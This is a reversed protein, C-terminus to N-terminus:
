TITVTITQSCTDTFSLVIECPIEIGGPSPYCFWNFYVKGSGCVGNPIGNCDFAGCSNQSTTTQWSTAVVNPPWYNPFPLQSTCGDGSLPSFVEEWTSASPCGCAGAIEFKNLIWTGAESYSSTSTCCGATYVFFDNATNLTESAPRYQISPRICGCSDCCKYEIVGRAAADKTMVRSTGYSRYTKELCFAIDTKCQLNDDCGSCEDAIPAFYFESDASAQYVYERFDYSVNAQSCAFVRPVSGRCNNGTTTFATNNSITYTYTALTHTVGNSWTRTLTGSYVITITAPAVFTPCNTQM